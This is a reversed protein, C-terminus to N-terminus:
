EKSSFFLLRSCGERILLIGYATAHGHVYERKAPMVPSDIKAIHAVAADAARAFQQQAEETSVVHAFAAPVLYRRSARLPRRGRIPTPLM